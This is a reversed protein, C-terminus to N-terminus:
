GRAQATLRRAARWLAWQRRWQPVEVPNRFPDYGAREMRALDLRALTAPLVAPVAAAPLSAVDQAFRALHERARARLDALAARLEPTARGALVDEGRAGHRELIDLPLYLRGRSAHRAVDRLLRTLALALGAPEIGAAPGAGLVQAALRMPAVVTRCAYAELHALSPMPDEYLDFGHAEILALLPEVPLAFRAIADGLAAAVPSAQAEGGREGALVDRWWQLRLEGALPQRVADAVRSIEIDFAHLAFLAGRRDAPAFLGALFRDKDAERTLRECHRYADDM